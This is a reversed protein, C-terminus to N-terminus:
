DENLAYLDLIEAGSLVRNYIMLDDAYLPSSGWWSGYGIYFYSCSKLLNMVPAYNFDSAAVGDLAGWALPNTKDYKKIGNVYIGFNDDQVTITVMVWEEPTIANTAGGDPHNCDFWGGTGNYGLYANPTLYLRGDVGDSPDEDFFSWIADWVNTDLRKVWLSITAGSIEQDKLPNDFKVYSTSAASEFGFYTHIFTTKWASETEFTPLTGSALRLLEGESAENVVNKLNSEFNYYAVLGSYSDFLASVEAATLAGNYILLDDILLDASGWWSGYGLYFFESSQLLNTVNQWMFKDATNGGSDGWAHQTAVDYKLKGNVYVCFGTADVTVTVMSWEGVAIADTIGGDPHNCDFWGGTGNFGLYANPTLYLRGNVGDSADEDFFAWIADWVNGDPRNVWLSVSAGYLDEIGQLPNDFKAYSTTAADAFGFYQHLVTSGRGANDEFTPATGSALALAQGASAPNVENALNNEFTYRALLKASRDVPPEPPENQQNGAPEDWLHMEMCSCFALTMALIVGRLVPNKWHILKIM